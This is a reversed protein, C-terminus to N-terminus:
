LSSALLAGRITYDTPKTPHVKWVRRKMMVTFSSSACFTEGKSKMKVSFVTVWGWPSILM